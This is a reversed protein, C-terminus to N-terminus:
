TNYMIYILTIYTYHFIIYTYPMMLRLLQKESVFSCCGPQTSPSSQLDFTLFTLLILLALLFLPSAKIENSGNRKKFIECEGQFKGSMNEYIRQKVKTVCTQPKKTIM